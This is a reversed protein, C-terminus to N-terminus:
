EEDNLSISTSIRKGDLNVLTIELMKTSANISVDFSDIGKAMVTGNKEIAQDTLTYSYSGVHLVGLSYSVSAPDTLRAKNTIDSMVQRLSTLDAASESQASYLNFGQAFLTYFLLAIASLLAVVIILEMFTYGKKNKM